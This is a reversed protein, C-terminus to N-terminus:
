ERKEEKVESADATTDKWQFKDFSKRTLLVEPHNGLKWIRLGAYIIVGGAFVGLPYVELPVMKRWAMITTDHNHLCPNKFQLQAATIKFQLQSATIKFQM